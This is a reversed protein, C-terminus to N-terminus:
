LWDRPRPFIGFPLREPSLACTIGWIRAPIKGFGCYDARRCDPTSSGDPVHAGAPPYLIILAVVAAQSRIPTEAARYAGDWAAAGSTTVTPAVLEVLSAGM